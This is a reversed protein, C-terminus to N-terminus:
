LTGEADQTIARVHDSPLGHVLTLAGWQHLNLSSPAEETTAQTAPIEAPTDGPPEIAPEPMTGAVSVAYATIALLVMAAAAVALL